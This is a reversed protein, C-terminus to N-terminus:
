QNKPLGEKRRQERIWRSTKVREEYEHALSVKDGDHLMDRIHDINGRLKPDPEYKQISGEKKQVLDGYAAAYGPPLQENEALQQDGSKEDHEGHRVEHQTQHERQNAVGPRFVVNPRRGHRVNEQIHQEVSIHHQLKLKTREGYFELPHNLQNWERRCLSTIQFEASPDKDFGDNELVVRFRTRTAANDTVPQGLGRQDDQLLRRDMFVDIAGDELSASGQAHESLVTLRTQNDQIAAHAPMPFVQSQIPLDSRRHHTDFNFGNLDTHFVGNSKIDTSFRVFWEQNNDQLNIEYIFDFVVAKKEDSITREIVTRRWFKTQVVYGGNQVSANKQSYPIQHDPFFLYAGGKKVVWVLWQERIPWIMLGTENHFQPKAGTLSGPIDCPLTVKQVQGGEIPINGCTQVDDLLPNYAFVSEGDGCMNESLGRPGDSQWCAEIKRPKDVPKQDQNREDSLSTNTRNPSSQIAVLAALETNRQQLKELIKTQTVQIAKYMRKAYDQVVPTRATGTVGDHHQFLSIQRRPMQLEQRSAGLSTAAYLVRELQRDLAKDFVRSTFYGSWYDQNVDAYTFFSGKLIPPTFQGRIAEFYQSLTGFQVKVGSVNQNIYDFIRQYNTYQLSAEKSTQYFDDGLPVLLAKGRYLNSKKLYQDLLTMSREKINSNDISRPKIKWPCAGKSGIPSRAFDFQCCVSPDPGCTHPVDYSYFPMLHTFMDYEGTSDWTQRWYFELQKNKAFEKKVAYHVRQILIGELGFQTKLMYPLTPSYGFPDISWGYKPLFEPGINHAIWDFGEQMQIELAEWNSNAEDPQVWGGTVFELQKNELLRRVSKRKVETQEEWWWSFYSIEAWIFKRKSDEELAKIVSSIIDKTQSQFYEDFTKLWGPDCHSHPVVFIQLEDESLSSNSLQRPQIDFGQKWVGGDPNDFPLTRSLERMDIIEASDHPAEQPRSGTNANVSESAMREVSVERQRITHFDQKLEDGGGGSPRPFTFPSRHANNALAYSSPAEPQQDHSKRHIDKRDGSDADQKGSTHKVDNHMTQPLVSSDYGELYLMFFATVSFFVVLFILLAMVMITVVSPIKFPERKTRVRRRRVPRSEGTNAASSGTREIYLNSPGSALAPARVENYTRTISEGSKGVSSASRVVGRKM